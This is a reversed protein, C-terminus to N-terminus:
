ADIDNRSKLGKIRNTMKPSMTQGTMAAMGGEITTIQVITVDAHAAATCVAFVAFTTLWRRMTLRPAVGRSSGWVSEQEGRRRSAGSAHSVRQPQNATM